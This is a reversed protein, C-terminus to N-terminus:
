FLERTVLPPPPAGNWTAQRASRDGASPFFQCHSPLVNGAAAAHATNSKPHCQQQLPTGTTAVRRCSPCMTLTAASQQQAAPASAAKLARLEAVEKELRKNQDALQECWRKMYECDVETQKLKTRARRNQFWVEVQRARLGLRNALATKQKPNLTSHTKFCEELVAAQDKSLRLKKRGGGGGGDEDEDSIAAGRSVGSGTRELGRKIGGGGGGGSVGSLAAGSEPSTSTRGEQQQGYHQQQYSSPFEMRAAVAAGADASVVSSLAAHWHQQQSAPSSSATTTSSTLSGQSALGLGLGLGLDLSGGGGGGRSMM